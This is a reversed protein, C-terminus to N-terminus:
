QGIGLVDVGSPSRVLEDHMEGVFLEVLNNVIEDHFPFTLFLTAFCGSLLRRHDGSKPVPARPHGGL